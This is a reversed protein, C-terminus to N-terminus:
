VVGARCTARSVEVEGCLVGQPNRGGSGCSDDERGAASEVDLDHVSGVLAGDQGVVSPDDFFVTCEEDIRSARLVRNGGAARLNGISSRRIEAGVEVGAVHGYYGGAAGAVDRASA